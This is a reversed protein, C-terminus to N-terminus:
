GQTNYLIRGHADERNQWHYKVIGDNAFTKNWWNGKYMYQFAM